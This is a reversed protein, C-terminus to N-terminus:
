PHASRLRRSAEHVRVTVWPPAGVAVPPQPLHTV